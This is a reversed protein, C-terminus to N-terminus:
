PRWRRRAYFIAFAPLAVMAVFGITAVVLQRTRHVPNYPPRASQWATLAMLLYRQGSELLSM